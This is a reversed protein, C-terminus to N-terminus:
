RFVAAPPMTRRTQDAALITTVNREGTIENNVSHQQRAAERITLSTYSAFSVMGACMGAAM